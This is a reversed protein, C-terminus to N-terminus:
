HIYKQIVDWASKSELGTKWFAAGALKNNAMIQLKSDLANSDELWVRYTVDKHVFEGYTQGCDELWSTNANNRDLLSIAEDMSCTYSTTEYDVYAGEDSGAESGEAPALMWIRNYFPMGLITQEAPVEKLTNTVAESVWGASAISGAESGAYHEDYGMIIVYDAFNAQESRNYFATYDSPVYNDVSLVLGNNACKLSLERILQIYSDGVEPGNLAEFDMNIGDLNYQIALSVIQNVLNHRTSTHTLVYTSDVDANELNSVLGWVEVGQKHCTSVYSNSALDALNGNNDDLYFWTPSVVNIGKGSSLVNSINDNAAPSAVQHWLMNIQFDKSIHTFSDPTFDCSSIEKAFDGICKSKAYGIVGSETVVEIWDELDELVYLKDGKTLDALIPSKIGGRVRLQTDKKVTAVAEEGFSSTLVLRSCDLDEYFAYDIPSFLKVFDINVYAQSGDIKLIPASFQATEKTITYSAMDPEVTILDSSTTYLLLNENADYYFRSNISDHVFDYKLYISGDSSLAFDDLLQHNLIIPLDGAKEVSYHESLSMREKTPTYKKILQAAVTGLVILLILGIVIAVPLVKKKM